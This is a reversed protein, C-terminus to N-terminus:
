SLSGELLPWFAEIPLSRITASGLRELLVLRIADGTAKKDCRLAARIADADGQPGDVPLGLAELDRRMADSTGVPTVGLAEGWRAAAIMGCAVAEGHLWHGGVAEIAHGLTHGFNLAMREGRDYPDREVYAAKIRAASYALDALTEWELPWRLSRVRELLHLDAICGCKYIEALGARIQREDLSRLCDADAITLVPQAFAGVLNKGGPLDVASKGGIASDAQALLTTPLQLFPIGRLYTAAAFGALDGVVGGGLAVALDSRSIGESRWSEYVTLLTEHSKSVEGAPVVTAVAGIGARELGEILAPLLLPAVHEDTVVAAKRGAFSALEPFDGLVAILGTGYVARSRVGFADIEITRM